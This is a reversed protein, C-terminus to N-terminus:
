IELFNLFACFTYFFHLLAVLIYFFRLSPTSAYLTSPRPSDYSLICLLTNFYLLFTFLTSCASISIVNEFLQQWTPLLHPPVQIESIISVEGRVTMVYSEIFISSFNQRVASTTLLKTERAPNTSIFLRSMQNTFYDM